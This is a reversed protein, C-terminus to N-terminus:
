ACFVEKILDHRRSPILHAYRLTMDLKKHGLQEKIQLIDAGGLALWSAHTHRLSHATIRYKNITKNGKILKDVIEQWQKPMQLRQKLNSSPFVLNSIKELKSLLSYVRDSMYAYRSNGKKTAKFYILRNTLNIDNWDLSAVEIFRAGTDLLMATLNYLSDNEYDKLNNLLKIAQEKSLFAVKANEPKPFKVRGGSLPNTYNKILENKIAHNIIQRAVALIYEVSRESLIKLKEQKLAEFEKPKIDVVNKNHFNVLHNNFLQEDKNWAKKNGKAWIIYDNYIDIFTTKRKKKKGILPDEGLKIKHIIENRKRFCFHENIGKSKDGIKARKLKNTEDKYTIYYSIDGNEKKYLQISSGYKKSNVYAM